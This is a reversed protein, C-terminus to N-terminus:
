STQSMSWDGFGQPDIEFFGAVSITESTEDLHEALEHWTVNNPERLELIDRLRSADVPSEAVATAIAEMCSDMSHLSCAFPQYLNALDDNEYDVVFVEGTSCDLGLFQTAGGETSCIGLLFLDRFNAPRPWEPDWQQMLM